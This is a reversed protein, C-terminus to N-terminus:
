PPLLLNDFFDPSLLLLRLLSKDPSLLAVRGDTAATSKAKPILTRKRTLREFHLDKGLAKTKEALSSFSLLVVILFSVANFMGLDAM